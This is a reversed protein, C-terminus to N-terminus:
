MLNNSTRWLEGKGTLWGALVMGWFEALHTWLLEGRHVHHQKERMEERAGKVMEERVGKSVIEVM